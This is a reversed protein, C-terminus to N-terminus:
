RDPPIDYYNILYDVTKKFPDILTQSAYKINKPYETYLFVIFEPDYAPFYGFFSHLNRDQYYGGAPNAVQATGTKGAVRYKALRDDNSTYADFVNVLLRSIEGSTEPSIVQPQDSYNFTKSLGNSYEIKKVLHPQPLKGQNALVSLSRAMAMPSLAIGQGFSMNAFEIDRNSKLNSSLPTVENPLDIGTKSTLGFKEFYDRFNQKSIKKSIAVMGTNLSQNLIEQVDVVGRGRGDYNKITSPGVQVSGTDNYSFTQPNISGSDIGVSVIIPKMISGMEYVKEVLPNQFVELSSKEFTNNNFSPYSGMAYIEGTKPNMIIGGVSQSSWTEQIKKLENEFFIQIQPDITTVIDGELEVGSSIGSQIGHFLRAFFNAYLRPDERKLTNEYYRELGYRGAYDDDKFALFGLLHAALGNLPYTRWKEAHLDVASGVLSKLEAGDEKEVRTAIEYYTRTKQNNLVNFFKDRDVPIISTIKNYIEEARETPFTSPNISVKYGSHNGAATMRTGDKQVFFISGREFFTRSSVIYQDDAQERYLYGDRIQLRFLNAILFVATLLMFGFLVHLRLTFKKNENKM